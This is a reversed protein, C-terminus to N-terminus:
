YGCKSCPGRGGVESIPVASITRKLGPCQPNTHYRDGYNTIIYASARNGCLECAYYIGGDENRAAAVAHASITSVSPNLYSCRIDRHFVTGKETIFVIEEGDEEPTFVGPTYGTWGHSFYASQLRIEGFGMVSILPVMTYDAILCIEDREDALISSRLLSIGEAGGRIGKELWPHDKLESVVMGRAVGESFALGGAFGLGGAAAASEEGDKGLADMGERYAFAWTGLEKGVNHLARGVSAQVYLMQFMCFLNLFFFMFLPLAMAAELTMSARLRREAKEGKEPNKRSEHLGKAAGKSSEARLSLLSAINLYAKLNAKIKGM